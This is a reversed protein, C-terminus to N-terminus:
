DVNKVNYLLQTAYYFKDCPKRSSEDALSATGIYCGIDCICSRHSNLPIKDFKNKVEFYNISGLVHCM